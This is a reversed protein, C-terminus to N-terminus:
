PTRMLVVPSRSGLFSVPIDSKYSGFPMSWFLGPHRFAYRPKRKSAYMRCACQSLRAILRMCFNREKPTM